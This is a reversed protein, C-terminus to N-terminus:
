MIWIEGITRLYKAIWEIKEALSLSAIVLFIAWEDTDVKWGIMRGGNSEKEQIEKSPKVRSALGSESLLNCFKRFFENLFKVGWYAEANQIFWISPHIHFRLWPCLIYHMIDIILMEVSFRFFDKKYHNLRALFVFSPWNKASKKAQGLM